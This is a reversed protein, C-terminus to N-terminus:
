ATRRACVCSVFLLNRRYTTHLPARGFRTLDRAFPIRLLCLACLSRYTHACARMVYGHARTSAPKKIKKATRKTNKVPTRSHTNHEAARHSTWNCVRAPEQAKYSVNNLRPTQLLSPLSPPPADRSIIFRGLDATIHACTHTHMSSAHGRASASVAFKGCVTKRVSVSFAAFM